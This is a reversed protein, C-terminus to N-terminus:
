TSLKEMEQALQFIVGTCLEFLIPAEELSVNLDPHAYPNRDTERIEDLRDTLRRPAREKILQEVYIKWDKKKFNWPKKALMVYYELMLVETARFMHFACATPVEFALCRASQKLDYLMKQPLLKRIKEPFEQEPRNILLSTDYIGKPTVIFVNLGRFDYGLANTLATIDTFLMAVEDSTLKRNWETPPGKTIEAFDNVLNIAAARSEGLPFEKIQILFDRLWDYVLLQKMYFDTVDMESSIQSQLEGIAFGLQYFINLDTEKLTGDGV